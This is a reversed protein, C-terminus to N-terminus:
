ARWGRRSRGWQVGTQAALGVEVLARARCKAGLVAAHKRRTCDIVRRRRGSPGPASAGRAKVFGWGSRGGLPEALAHQADDARVDRGRGPLVARGDAERSGAGPMLMCVRGHGAAVGV